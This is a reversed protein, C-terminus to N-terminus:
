RRPHLLRWTTACTRDLATLASRCEDQPALKRLAIVRVLAMTERSSGYAIEYHHYRARGRRGAGEALNLPACTASRQGQDALARYRAPLHELLIGGASRATWRVARGIRIHLSGEDLARDKRLSLSPPEPGGPVGPSASLVPTKSSSDSQYEHTVGCFCRLACMVTSRRPTASDLLTRRSEGGAPRGAYHHLASRCMSDDRTSWATGVITQRGPLGPTASRQFTEPM